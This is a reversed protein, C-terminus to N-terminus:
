VEKDKKDLSVKSDLSESTRVLEGNVESGVSMEILNYYVNGSIRAKKSLEVSEKAYVNGIVAGNLVQYPARVEGEITGNESLSLMSHEDDNESIVNGKVMGDVHLGGKFHLDGVIKADKGILTNISVSKNKKSGGFM